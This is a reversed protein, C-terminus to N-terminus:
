RPTLKPWAIEIGQAMLTSQFEALRKPDKRIARPTTKLRLAEAALMGASEGINWEV